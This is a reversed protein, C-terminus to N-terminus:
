QPEFTQVGQDTKGKFLSYVLGDDDVVAWSEQHEPDSLSWGTIYDGNNNYKVISIKRGKTDTQIQGAYGEKNRVMLYVNGWKDGVVTHFYASGDPPDGHAFAFLFTGKADFKQTPGYYGTIFVDGSPDVYLGHPANFQGPNVGIKGWDYLFKGSHDYVNVRFNDVDVVFLQQAKNFGMGHARHLQGPQIGKEGFIMIFEGEHTFEQIRPRDGKSDTVWINGEADITAYRPTSIEGPESGSGLGIDDIYEGKTTFRMVRSNGQDAILLNGDKDFDIGHPSKLYKPNDNPESWTHILKYTEEPKGILVTAFLYRNVSDEVEACIHIEHPKPAKKPAKYVGDSDITGLEKNGGPINNVSWKVQEPNSAAILYTAELVIKFKQEGGPELRVLSPKITARQPRNDYIAALVTQTSIALCLGAIILNLFRYRSNM